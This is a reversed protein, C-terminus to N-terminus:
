GMERIRIEEIIEMPRARQQDLPLTEFDEVFTTVM